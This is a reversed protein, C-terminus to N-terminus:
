KGSTFLEELEEQHEELVKLVWKSWHRADTGSDGFVYDEQGYDIM